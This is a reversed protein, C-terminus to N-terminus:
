AQALEDGAGEAATDILAYAKGNWQFVAGLARLEQKLRAIRAPAEGTSGEDPGAHAGGYHTEWENLQDLRRRIQAARDSAAEAM